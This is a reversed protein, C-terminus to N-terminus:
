GQYTAIANVTVINGGSNITIIISYQQGLQLSSVNGFYITVENNGPNLTIPNIYSAPLSPSQISASVLTGQTSAYLTLQAYGNSRIVGQGVQYFQPKQPYTPSSTYPPYVPQQPNQPQYQQPYSYPPYSPPVQYGGQMPYGGMSVMNIIKGLGLYALIYGIFSILDFPIAALIGGIKTTGENYADGVKYVGVGLLIGGIVAIIEGILLIIIGIGVITTVAGILVLILGVLYLTGGTDGIGVDRGLSKLIGFGNKMRLVGVIGLIAGLLIVVVGAIITSFAGALAGGVGGAAGGAIAAFVFSMMIILGIAALLPSIILFLVGSRLKRLGEVEANQM